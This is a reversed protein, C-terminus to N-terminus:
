CLSGSIDVASYSIFADQERDVKLVLRAGGRSDEECFSIGDMANGVSAGRTGKYQQNYLKKYNANRNGIYRGQSNKFSMLILPLETKKIFVKKGTSWFYPETGERLKM